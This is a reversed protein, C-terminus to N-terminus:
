INMHNSFGVTRPLPFSSGIMCFVRGGILPFALVMYSGSLWSYSSGIWVSYWAFQLSYIPFGFTSHGVPFFHQLGLSCCHLFYTLCRFFGSELQNTTEQHRTETDAYSETEIETTHSSHKGVLWGALRICRVEGGIKRLVMLCFFEMWESDNWFLIQILLVNYDDYCLITYHITLSDIRGVRRINGKIFLIFLKYSSFFLLSTEKFKFRYSHTKHKKFVNAGGVRRLDLTM